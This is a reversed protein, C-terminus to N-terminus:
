DSPNSRPIVVSSREYYRMAAEVRSKAGMKRYVTELYTRITSESLCLRRAIEKNHYGKALLTLVEAERPTLKESPSTGATDRRLFSQVANVMTGQSFWMEGRVIKEIAQQMIKPETKKSLVGWAGASVALAAFEEEASDVLLLCKTSRSLAEIQQVWALCHAGHDCDILLIQPKSDIIQEAAEALSAADVVLALNRFPQSSLLSLLGKRVLTQNSIIGVRLASV